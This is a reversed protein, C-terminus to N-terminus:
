ADSASAFRARYAGPTMGVIRKFVACFHSQDSFGCALAVEALTRRSGLLRCARETRRRRVMEGITCGYYRHFERCLHVPHVGVAAAITCLSPTAAGSSEILERARTLWRPARRIMDRRGASAEVLLNIALMELDMPSLADLREAERVLRVGIAHAAGGGIAGAMRGVSRDADDIRRMLEPSLELQLCEAPSSIRNTHPEEAPLLRVQGPVCTETRNVMREEFWGRTIVTILSTAHTHRPLSLGGPLRRRVVHVGGCRRDVIATGSLPAGATM